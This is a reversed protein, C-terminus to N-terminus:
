VSARPICRCVIYRVTKLKGMCKYFIAPAPGTRSMVDYISYIPIAYGIIPIAYGIIPIAYGIIPITDIIVYLSNKTYIDM